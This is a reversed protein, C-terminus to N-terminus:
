VMLTTATFEAPCFSNSPVGIVISVVDTVGAGLMLARGVDLLVAVGMNLLKSVGVGLLM